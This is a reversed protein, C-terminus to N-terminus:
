LSMYNPRQATWCSKYIRRVTDALAVVVTRVLGALAAAFHLFSIM